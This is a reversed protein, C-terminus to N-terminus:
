GSAREAIQILGRLYGLAYATAEYQQANDGDTHPLHSPALFCDFGVENLARIIALFDCDAEDLFCEDFTPVSGKVGQAHGFLIRGQPGFRRISALIDTGMATWNGLCFTIGSNPSDAIDMARQFGADDHFLWPIGGLSEVPPDNPHLALKVGAEECVPIIAKIFYAYNAWMEDESYQRKRSMPLTDAVEGDFRSVMAGGRGPRKYSTRWSAPYMGPPNVNWHYTLYPIGAKGMIRINAAINEIQEDRGPQGLWIRDMAFAPTKQGAGVLARLRLGVEECRKRFQVLGLFSLSALNRDGSNAPALPLHAPGLIVDEVGYQALFRPFEEDLTAFAGLRVSM